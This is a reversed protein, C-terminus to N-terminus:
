MGLLLPVANVLAGTWELGASGDKLTNELEAQIIGMCSRTGAFLFNSLFSAIVVMWCFGGDKTRNQPGGGYKGRTVTEKILVPDPDQNIVKLSEHDEESDKAVGSKAFGTEENSICFVTSIVEPGEMEPEKNEGHRNLNKQISENVIEKKAKDKLVESEKGM